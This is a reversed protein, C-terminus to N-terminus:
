NDNFIQINKWLLWNHYKSIQMEIPAVISTFDYAIPQKIYCCIFLIDIFYICLCYLKYAFRRWPM